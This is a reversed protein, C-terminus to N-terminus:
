SVMSILHKWCNGITPIHVPMLSCNGPPMPNVDYIDCLAVVEAHEINKLNHLHYQGRSGTGILAVRARTGKIDKLKEPTCSTLWPMASLVMAGGAIGGLQRIFNRLSLDVEQNRNEM